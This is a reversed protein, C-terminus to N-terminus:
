RPHTQACCLQCPISPHSCCSLLEDQGTHLDGDGSSFPNAIGRYVNSLWFSLTWVVDTTEASNVTVEFACLVWLLMVSAGVLFSFM